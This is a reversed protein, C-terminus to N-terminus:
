VRLNNLLLVLPSHLGATAPLPLVFRSSYFFYSEFFNELSEFQNKKSLFTSDSKRKLNSFLYFYIFSLRGNTVQTYKAQPELHPKDM